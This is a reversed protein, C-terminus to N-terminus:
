TMTLLKSETGLTIDYDLDKKQSSKVSVEVSCRRLLVDNLTRNTFYFKPFVYHLFGESSSWSCLHSPVTKM